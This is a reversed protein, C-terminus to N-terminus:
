VNKEKRKMLEQYMDDLLELMREESIKQYNISERFTKNGNQLDMMDFDTKHGAKTKPYTIICGVDLHEKLWQAVTM